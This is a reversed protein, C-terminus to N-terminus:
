LAFFTTLLMPLYILSYTMDNFKNKTVEQEIKNKSETSEKIESSQTTEKTKLSQTTENTKSPQTVEESGATNTDTESLKSQAPPDNPNYPLVKSLLYNLFASSPGKTSKISNQIEKLTKDDMVSVSLDDSISNFFYLEGISDVSKRIKLFYKLNPFSKKPFSNEPLLFKYGIDKILRQENNGIM